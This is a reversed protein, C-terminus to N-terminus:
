MIVSAAKLANKFVSSSGGGCTTKIKAVVAGWFSGMVTSDRQWRNSTRRKGTGRMSRWRFHITSCSPLVASDAASSRMASALSPPMRSAWDSSSWTIAPPATVSARTVSTSPPSSSARSATRIRASSPSSTGARSAAAWSAYWAPASAKCSSRSTAIRSSCTHIPIATPAAAGSNACARARCTASRTGASASQNPARSSSASASDRRRPDNGACSTTSSASTRAAPASRLAGAARVLALEVVLQAPFSGRLRSEAEALLELAGFWDAEAPVLDAVQRARAQALEPAAAGVAMGIWVHELRMAVERLLQLADAGAQYADQAAALLAPVDEGLLARMLVALRADDLGGLVETVRADTVAGGAMVQDLLSQADRMGGDSAEAIRLLAASEATSGEQEVIWKLHREILPVPLRRVEFRQCRSLVTIPLKQPATTAFIFVVHPPPEELTKLFANFAAETMMHIEDVIYIKRRGMAPAYLVKERLDRVDDIGRNSAGDIEIIDLHGGAAAARCSPCEGCPEGDQPADCTAAAALIRALSTKGTGRPGTFLYAHTLQQRRISERLVSVVADQGVVDQFRRPRYARYLAQRAM